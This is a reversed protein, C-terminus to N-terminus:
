ERYHHHAVGLNAAQVQYSLQNRSHVTQLSVLDSDSCEQTQTLFAHVQTSHLAALVRYEREVAHASALLKGPPKKRLVYRQGGVQLHCATAVDPACASCVRGHM